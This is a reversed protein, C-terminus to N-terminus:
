TKIKSGRTKEKINHETVQRMILEQRTQCTNARQRIDDAVRNYSAAHSLITPTPRKGAEIKGKNIKFVAEVGEARKYIAVVEMLSKACLALEQEPPNADVVGEFFGAEIISCCLLYASTVVSSGTGTM